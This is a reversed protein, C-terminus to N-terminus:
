TRTRPASLFTGPDIPSGTPNPPAVMRWPSRTTRSASPATTTSSSRTSSTSAAARSRAARSTSFRAFSWAPASEYSRSPRRESTSFHGLREVIDCADAVGLQESGAGVLAQAEEDVHQAHLFLR